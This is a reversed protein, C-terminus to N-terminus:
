DVRVKDFTLRLQRGEAARQTFELADRALPQDQGDSRPSFKTEPTDSGILRVRAGGALVLTDGDTVREVQYHDEALQEPTQHSTLQWVRFAVLMALALVAGM